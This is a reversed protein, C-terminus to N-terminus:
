AHILIEYPGAFNALMGSTLRFGDPDDDILDSVQSRHAAIAALKAPVHQSMDLRLGTPAPGVESDRPLTWGWIPYFFIRAAGLRARAGTVLAASAVHDCHPDHPWSVCVAGAACAAALAVITERAAEADPGDCPVARDALRLFTIASAALGLEGAAARTEDERLAQLRARPYLRSRPHSGTGDSVVLLRVDVGGACAAAILGGCGLSEDDPHPAVVLLGGTNVVAGLDAVPLAEARAFFAAANM